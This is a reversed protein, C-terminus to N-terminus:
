FYLGAAYKRTTWFEKFTGDPQRELETKIWLAFEDPSLRQQYKTVDHFVKARDKRFVAKKDNLNLSVITDIAEKDNEDRPVIGGTETYLFRWECDADLPSVLPTKDGQAQGCTQPKNKPNEPCSYLLNTYVLELDPCKSRAHLHAIHGSEMGVRSECFCCLGGQEELLAAKVKHNISTGDTQKTGQKFESWGPKMSDWDEKWDIFATPEPNKVIYKM